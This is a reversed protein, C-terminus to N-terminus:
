TLILGGIRVLEARVSRLSFIQFMKMQVIEYSIHKLEESKSESKPYAVCRQLSKRIETLEVSYKM